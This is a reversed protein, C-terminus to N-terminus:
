PSCTVTWVTSFSGGNQSSVLVIVSYSNGITFGGSPSTDIASVSQGPAVPTVSPDPAFNSSKLVNTTGSRDSTLTVTINDVPTSGTNKLTLAFVSAGSSTEVLSDSSIEMQVSTSATHVTSMVLGYLVISFAVTMAILIITAVIPSVAKTHWRNSPRGPSLLIRKM